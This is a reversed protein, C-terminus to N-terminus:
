KSLKNKKELLLIEKALDFVKEDPWTMTYNLSFENQLSVDTLWKDFFSRNFGEKLYNNNKLFFLRLQYLQPGISNKIQNFKLNTLMAKFQKETEEKGKKKDKRNDYITKILWLALGSSFGILYTVIDM